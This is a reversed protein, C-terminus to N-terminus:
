VAVECAGVLFKPDIRVSTSYGAVKGHWRGLAHAGRFATNLASPAIRKAALVTLGLACLRQATELVMAPTGATSDFNIQFSEVDNDKNPRIWIEVTKPLDLFKCPWGPSGCDTKTPLTLGNEAAHTRMLAAFTSPSIPERDRAMTTDTVCLSALLGGAAACGAWILRM